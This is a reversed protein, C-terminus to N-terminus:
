VRQRDQAHLARSYRLIALIDNELQDQLLKQTCLYYAGGVGELPFPHSAAWFAVTAGIASKGVGTPASIIIDRM